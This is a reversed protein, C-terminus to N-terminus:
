IKLKSYEWDWNIVYFVIFSKLFICLKSSILNYKLLIKKFKKNYWNVVSKKKEVVITIIKQM